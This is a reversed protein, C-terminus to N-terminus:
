FLKEELAKLFEEAYWESHNWLDVFTQCDPTLKGFDELRPDVKLVVLNEYGEREPFREKLKSLDKEQLYVYVKGYDAPMEGYKEHYATYSGFVAEPIMKKEIDTVSDSVNTEYIVDGELDRLTAWIHLFKEVNKVEFGRGGVKVVNSKRPVKLANFVTSSSLNYKRALEQQTWELKKDQLAHFLIDRWIVQKKNMEIESDTKVEEFVSVEIDKYDCYKRLGAQTESCVIMPSIEGCNFNSSMLYKGVEVQGIVARNLKSKVEIIKVSEGEVEEKLERLNFDHECYVEKEKQPILVADVKQKCKENKVRGVEVEKFLKGPNQDWYKELLKDEPTSFNAM